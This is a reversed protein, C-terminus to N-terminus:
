HDLPAPERLVGGVIDGRIGPSYVYLLFNCKVDSFEDDRRMEREAVGQM